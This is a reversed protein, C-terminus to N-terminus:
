IIKMIKLKRLELKNYEREVWGKNMLKHTRHSIRNPLYMRAKKNVKIIKHECCFIAEKHHEYLESGNYSIGCCILDVESLTDYFNQKYLDRVLDFPLTYSYPIKPRILQVVKNGKFFTKPESVMQTERYMEAMEMSTLIGQKYSYGNEILLDTLIECSRSGCLIDIDKIPYKRYTDSIIDRLCGGFVHVLEDVFLTDSDFELYEDLIKKIKEKM